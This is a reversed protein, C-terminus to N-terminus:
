LSCVPYTLVLECEANVTVWLRQKIEKTHAVRQTVCIMLSGGTDKIPRRGYVRSCSLSLRAFITHGVNPSERYVVLRRCIYM